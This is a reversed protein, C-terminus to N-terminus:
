ANESLQLKTKSRKLKAALDKKFLIFGNQPRPPSSESYSKRKSPAFLKDITLTLKYPPNILLSELNNPVSISTLSSSSPPDFSNELIFRIPKKDTTPSSRSM